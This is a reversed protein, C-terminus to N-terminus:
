SGLAPGLVPSGILKLMWSWFPFFWGAAIDFSKRTSIWNSSEEFATDRFALQMIGAFAASAFHM